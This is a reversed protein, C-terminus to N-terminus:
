PGTSSGAASTRPGAPSRRRPDDKARVPLRADAIVHARDPPILEHGVGFRWATRLMTHIKKVTSVDLDRPVARKTTVRHQDRRCIAAVANKTLGAGEVPHRDVLWMAIDSHSWGEARKARILDYVFDPRGRPRGLGAEPHRGGVRLDNVLREIHGSHVDAVRLHGIAPIVKGEVYSRYKLATNAHLDGAKAVREEDLYPLFHDRLFDAVTLHRPAPVIRHHQAAARADVLAAKAERKSTGVTRCVERRRGSADLYPVRILYKNGRKFLGPELKVRTEPNTSV